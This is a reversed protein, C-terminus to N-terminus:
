KISSSPRSSGAAALPHTIRAWRPLPALRAATRLPLLMSVLMPKVGVAPNTILVRVPSRSGPRPTSGPARRPCSRPAIEVCPSGRIRAARRRRFSDRGARNARAPVFLHEPSPPWRATKSGPSFTSRSGEGGRETSQVREDEGGADALVRREDPFPDAVSKAKEADFEVRPAIRLIRRQDGPVGAADLHPDDASVLLDHDRARDGANEMEARNPLRLWHAGVSERGIKQVLHIGVPAGRVIQRDALDVQVVVREQFPRQRERIHLVHQRPCQPVVGPCFKM